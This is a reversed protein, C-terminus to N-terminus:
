EIKIVQKGYFIRNPNNIPYVEINYRGSPFASLDIEDIEFDVVSKQLIVQGNMNTVVM